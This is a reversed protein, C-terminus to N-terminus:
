DFVLTFLHVFTNTGVSDTMLRGAFFVHATPFNGDDTHHIGFDIVDLKRIGVPTREFFQSVLRNIRPTPDFTIVRCGGAKAIATLEGKLAQYTLSSVRSWPAYDGLARSATQKPDKKDIDSGPPISNIPPLYKFNPLQSLRPDQFLSELQDVHAGQAAIKKIPGNDTIAFSVTSPGVGFGDDEFLPDHTSILLQRQFSSISSDLIVGAGDHANTGSLLQMQEITGSSGITPAYTILQGARIQTSAASRFPVLRGSDDSEFVIQDQPLDAAELYVRSTADASGSAVDAAYFAAGDTFSVHAIRLKGQAIQRRGELTVITDLVRTKSDLIGSMCDSNYPAVLDHLVM